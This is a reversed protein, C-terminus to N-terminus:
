LSENGNKHINYLLSLNDIQYAATNFKTFQHKVPHVCKNLFAKGLPPLHCGYASPHPTILEFSLFVEDAERQEAGEGVPSPKGFVLYKGALYSKLFM